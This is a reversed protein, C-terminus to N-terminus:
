NTAYLKRMSKWVEDPSPNILHQQQEGRTGILAPDTTGYIVITPKALAAALHSFGTDVCVLLQAHAIVELLKTLSSKPLIITNSFQQTINQTLSIERDNGSPFVVSIREDQCHKLLAQWNETSWRKDTRSTNTIFVCYKEPLNFDPKSIRQKDLGYHIINPDFSYNLIEALLERTRTIAHQQKKVVFSKQYVTAALPERVSNKAFGCRVGRALRTLFASKVLGQADIVYDYQTCRLQRYFNRWEASFFTSLFNKRWRRLAVPIIKNIAPHWRPIEAFAEEVVWDIRVKPIHHAADTIAPLTHIIDGM